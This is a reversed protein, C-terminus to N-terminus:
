FFNAANNHGPPAPISSYMDGGPASAVTSGDGWHGSQDWFDQAPPAFRLL